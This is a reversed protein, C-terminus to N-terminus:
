TLFKMRIERQLRCIMQTERQFQTERQNLPDRCVEKHVAERQLRSLVLLSIM